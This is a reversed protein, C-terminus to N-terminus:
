SGVEEKKPNHGLEELKHCIMPGYGRFWNIARDRGHDDARILYEAIAATFANVVVTRFYGLVYVTIFITAGWGIVGGVFKLVLEPNMNDFM